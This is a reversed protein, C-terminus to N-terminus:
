KVLVIIDIGKQKAVACTSYIMTKTGTVICVPKPTYGSTGSAGTPGTAGTSGTAGTAGTFGQLGGSIGTAGTAGPVGTAGTAGTAGTPGTAGPAGTAGTSGKAGTAGVHGSDGKIGTLGATKLLTGDPFKLGQATLQTKGVTISKAGNILLSGDSVTLGAQKGTSRDQIWLTGPGLQLAKWRMTASGLSFSNDKTPVINGNITTSLSHVSIYTSESLIYGISIGLFVLLTAIATM